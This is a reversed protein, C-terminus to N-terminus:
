FSSPIQWPWLCSRPDLVIPPRRGALRHEHAETPHCVIRDGVSGSAGSILGWLAWPRERQPNTIGMVDREQPGIKLGWELGTYGQFFRGRGGCLRKNGTCGPLEAQSNWTCASNGSLGVRFCGSTFEWLEWGRIHPGALGGAPMRGLDM